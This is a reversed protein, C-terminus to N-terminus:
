TRQNSSNHKRDAAEIPILIEIDRCIKFSEQRSCSLKIFYCPDWFRQRKRQAHTPPTNYVQKSTSCPLPHKQERKIRRRELVRQYMKFNRLTPCENMRETTQRVVPGSDGGFRNRWVTSELAEDKLKWYRITKKLDDLLQKRRRRRRETVETRGEIKRETVHKLLCIRRWNHGM